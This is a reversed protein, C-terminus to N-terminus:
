VDVIVQLQWGPECPEIELGLYSIGKVETRPAHVAPDIPEGAIRGRCRFGCSSNTWVGVHFRSFVLGDIDKRALLESLWLVLLQELTQAQLDVNRVLLPQVSPLEVMLAFLARGAEAFAGALTAHKVRFGADAPHDLWDITM